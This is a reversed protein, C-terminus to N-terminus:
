SDSGCDGTVVVRYDGADGSAVSAITLSAGITGALALSGKYWQYTLGNGTANVAFLAPEGQCVVANAPPIMISVPANLALLASKSTVSGCDSTVQVEYNGDDGSSVSNISYDARNAGAIRTGNKFWQYTLGTGTSSVNFSVKDGLCVTQANPQAS